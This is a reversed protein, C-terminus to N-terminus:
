PHFDGILGDGAAARPFSSGAHGDGADRNDVGYWRTRLHIPSQQRSVLGGLFLVPCLALRSFRLSAPNMVIYFVFGDDVLQVGAVELVTRERRRGLDLLTQRCRGADEPM